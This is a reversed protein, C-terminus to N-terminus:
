FLDMKFDFGALFMKYPSHGLLSFFLIKDTSLHAKTRRNLNLHSHKPELISHITSYNKSLTYCLPYKIAGRHPVFLMKFGFGTKNRPIHFITVSSLIKLKTGSESM